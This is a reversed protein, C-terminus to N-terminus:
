RDTIEEESRIIRFAWCYIILSFGAGALLGTTIRTFPVNLDFIHQIAWDTFILIFSIVVYPRAYRYITPHGFFFATILSGIMFGMLLGMDRVCVPMESGNLIFTRSMQQHCVMDGITYTIMTLPDCGSWIDWHDLIGPTGDLYTFSGYSSLFPVSFFVFTVVASIAFLVYLLARPGM